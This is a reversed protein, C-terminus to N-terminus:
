NSFVVGDEMQTFYGRVSLVHSIVPTEPCGSSGELGWKSHGETPLKRNSNASDARNWMPSSKSLIDSMM